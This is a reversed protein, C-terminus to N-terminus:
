FCVFVSLQRNFMDYIMYENILVQCFACHRHCMKMLTLVIYKYIVVTHCICYLTLQIGTNKLAYFVACQM